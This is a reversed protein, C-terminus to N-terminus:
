STQSAIFWGLLATRKDYRWGTLTLFSHVPPSVDRTLLADFSRRSGKCVKTCNTVTYGGGWGDVWNHKCYVNTHPKSILIDWNYKTSYIVHQIKYQLGRSKGHMCMVSFFIKWMNSPTLDDVIKNVFKLQFFFQFQRFNHKLKTTYIKSKKNFSPWFVVTPNSHRADAKIILRITIFLKQSKRIMNGPYSVIYYAHSKFNSIKRSMISWLYSHRFKCNDAIHM